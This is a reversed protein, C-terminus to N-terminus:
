LFTHCTLLNENMTDKLALHLTYLSDYEHSGQTEYLLWFIIELKVLLPCTAFLHLQRKVIQRWHIEVERRKM